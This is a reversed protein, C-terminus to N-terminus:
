HFYHEGVHLVAWVVGPISGRTCLLYKYHCLTSPLRWRARALLFMDCIVNIKSAKQHLQFILSEGQMQRLDEDRVDMNERAPRLPSKFEDPHKAKYQAWGRQSANPIGGPRDPLKRYDFDTLGERFCLSNKHICEATCPKRCFIYNAVIGLRQSANGHWNKKCKCASFGM